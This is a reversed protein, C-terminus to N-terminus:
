SGSSSARCASSCCRAHAAALAAPLRWQQLQSGFSSPPAYAGQLLNIPRATPMQAALLPLLGDPLLKVQLTATRARLGEIVEQHAEYEAPTAYFTM